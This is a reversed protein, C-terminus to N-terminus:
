SPVALLSQDGRALVLRGNDWSLEVWQDVALLQELASREQEGCPRALGVMTADIVFRNDDWTALRTAGPTCRTDHIVSHDEGNSVFRFVGGLKSGDAFGDSDVVTWSTGALLKIGPQEEEGPISSCACFFLLTLLTSAAKYFM